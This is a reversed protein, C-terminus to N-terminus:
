RFAAPKSVTAQMNHEFPFSPSHVPTFRSSCLIWRIPQGSFVTDCRCLPSVSQECVRPPLFRAKPVLAGMVIGCPDFWRHDRPKMNSLRDQPCRKRMNFTISSKLRSHRAAITSVDNDPILTARSSSQIASTRLYGQMITESLSVSNVDFAISFHRSSRFTSHCYMAGFFAICFPRTSLKLPRM